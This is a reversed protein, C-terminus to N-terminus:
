NSEFTVSFPVFLAGKSQNNRFIFYLDHLGQRPPIPVRYSPPASNGTLLNPDSSPKIFETQGLLPGEPSGTRVEIVGGQANLQEVPAAVQLSISQIATLDIEKFGAYTDPSTVILLNTEGMKFKMVTPSVEDANGLLLTPSRLEVAAAGTISPVGNYGKDTYSASLKFVTRDSTLGESSRPIVEGKTPLLKPEEPKEALSLIYRVMQAADEESLAPHPSMPIEGWIGAGGKIIKESLKKSAEPVSRYKGAVDLYSPGVSKKDTMHCANCDSKDILVRGPLVEQPSHPNAVTAHPGASSEGLNHFGSKVLVLEEAIQNTKLAGDEQDYVEVEYTIKKGAFFFTQNGGLLRLTVNPPANGATLSLDQSSQLGKSDTATLKAQYKGPNNFQFTPNPDELLALTEGHPSYIEWSYELSDQDYDLTGESSFNVNFPVAGAYRDASAVAIPKRNGDNYEIRVLKAEPNAMFWGQGYELLYLDGQPGFVMDIPHELELNPLFPEMRIYNGQENLTVAMIWDRMWEYIFWKGEYYSPFLRKAKQFDSEHFVPGAMATRGGSGLLPFRLSEGASYFIMAKQAPPLDIMGTNNPSNNSPHEPDFQEGSQNTAFNFDWFAKNNGVFYPWGFNGAAKARNFEDEAAPGLGTSDQGADPGVDGWYLFGTKKDVSIRYPNRHGMTYIEPRTGPTGPPFLNGKPITYTGDAEPHIRLIKGRLDNTNAATGQADFASRGEREDIPAYGASERPSTNDGTSLYLNGDSDWDISGGTHCCHDRQTPVELLIKVSTLDLKDDKMTYRALINKPEKGAPSYYLYVWPHVNFDPHIGLGLLGDEAEQPSGGPEPNYTTSVEIKGLQDVKQNIPNYLKVLGHREIFIVRDDPLIALELPENLQDALVVKQFRNEEPIQAIAPISLFLFVLIKVIKGM